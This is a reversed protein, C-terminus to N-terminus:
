SFINRFVSVVSDKLDKWFDKMTSEVAEKAAEKAPEVVQDRVAEELPKAVEERLTNGVAGALQEGIIKEANEALTEGYQEYLESFAAGIEDGHEAYLERAMSIATDHSLGLSDLMELAQVIQERTSDQLTVGFKKQGEEIALRLDEEDALEGADWKEKVFDLLDSVEEETLSHEAEQQTESALEGADGQAALVPAAKFVTLASFGLALILAAMKGKKM